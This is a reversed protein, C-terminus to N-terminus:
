SLNQCIRWVALMRWAFDEINVRSSASQRLQRINKNKKGYYGSQMGGAPDNRSDAPHM